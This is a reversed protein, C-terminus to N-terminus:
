IRFCAKLGRRFSVKAARESGTEKEEQDTEAEKTANEHDRLRGVTGTIATGEQDGALFL